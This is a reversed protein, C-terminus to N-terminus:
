NKYQTLANVSLLTKGIKTSFLDFNLICIYIRNIDVNLNQICSNDLIYIM